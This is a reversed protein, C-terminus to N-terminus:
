GGQSQRKVAEGGLAEVALALLSPIEAAHPSGAIAAQLEGRDVDKVEDAKAGPFWHSAGGLMNFRMKGYESMDWGRALQHLWLMIPLNLNGPTDYHEPLGDWSIAEPSRFGTAAEMADELRKVIPPLVEDARDLLADASVHLDYDEPKSAGLSLTHVGPQSLTWLDNFEIPHLPKCLEVLKDPPDYLKGGKDTPSIIFVGMDRRTAADIAARNRQFIYYYHLNVYDFGHEDIDIAALLSPRMAHTSFGVHKVKGEKQLKRAAELCGGKKRVKDVIEFNNIGHIGLLDVHDLQLRELSEAFHKLFEEGTETPGIKTQVILEERPFKPLVLGLQRESPGYGRATEIHHIGHKLSARITAEMNETTKPDIQDLPKDQWGDQYRMGGTSFVPMQLETRGFRRYHM